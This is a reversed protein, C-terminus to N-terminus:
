TLGISRALLNFWTRETTNYAVSEDGIRFLKDNGLVRCMREKAKEEEKGPLPKSKSQVCRQYCEVGMPLNKAARNSTKEDKM